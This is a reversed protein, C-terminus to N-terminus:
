NFVRRRLAGLGLLGSSLLALSAPEPVPRVYLQDAYYPHQATSSGAWNGSAGDNWDCWPSPVAVFYAAACAGTAGASVFFDSGSVPDVGGNPVNAGPFLFYSAFNSPISNIETSTPLRWGFQSQYSLDGTVYCGGSYPCPGGWAWDLGHWIIDANSAVPRNYYAAFSPLALLTVLLVFVFIKRM